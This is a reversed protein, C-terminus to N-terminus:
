ERPPIIPKREPRPELNILALNEDFRIQYGEQKMERLIERIKQPTVGCIQAIEKYFIRGVGDFYDQKAYKLIVNKIAQKDIEM